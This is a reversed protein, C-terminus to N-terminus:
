YDGNIYPFLQIWMPKIAKQFKSIFKQEDFSERILTIILTM